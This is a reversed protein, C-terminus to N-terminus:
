VVGTLILGNVYKSNKGLRYPLFQGISDWRHEDAQDYKIEMVVADDLRWRLNGGLQRRASAFEMKRDLTLRFKGDRSILYSRLYRNYLAPELRVNPLVFERLHGTEDPKRPDSKIQLTQQLNRNLYDPLDTRGIGLEPLPAFLKDGLEGDKRKVELMPTAANEFDAGYWRIRFKTRIGVGDLNENLFDLYPTDLYLNNVIRDPFLNRFAMPHERVTQKVQAFSDLEIRYKREYRM